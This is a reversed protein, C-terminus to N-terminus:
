VLNIQVNLLSEWKNQCLFLRQASSGPRLFSTITLPRQQTGLWGFAQPKKGYLFDIAASHASNGSWTYLCAKHHYLFLLFINFLKKFTWFLFMQHETETSEESDAKAWDTACFYCLLLPSNINSVRSFSFM